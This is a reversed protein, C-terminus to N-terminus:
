DTMCITGDGVHSQNKKGLPRKKEKNIYMFDLIIEPVKAFYFFMVNESIM